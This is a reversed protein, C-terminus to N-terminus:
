SLFVSNWPSLLKDIFCLARFPTLLLCTVEIRPTELDLWHKQWKGPEKQSSRRRNLNQRYTNRSWVFKQQGEKTQVGWRSGPHASAEKREQLTQSRSWSFKLRPEELDQFIVSPLSGLEDGAGVLFLKRMISLVHLSDAVQRDVTLIYPPLKQPHCVVVIPNVLFTWKNEKRYSPELLM